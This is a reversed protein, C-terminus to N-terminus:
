PRYRPKNNEKWIEPTDDGLGFRSLFRDLLRRVSSRKESPSSQQQAPTKIVATQQPAPAPISKKTPTDFEIDLLDASKPQQKTAVPPTVTTSSPQNKAINKAINEAVNRVPRVPELRTPPAAPSIENQLGLRKKIQKNREGLLFQVIDFHGKTVAVDIATQGAKNRSSLDAGEELSKRVAALDNKDTTTFLQQTAVSQNQALGTRPGIAMGILMAIVLFALTNRRFGNIPVFLRMRKLWVGSFTIVLYHHGAPKAVTAPM